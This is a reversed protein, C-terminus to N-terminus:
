TICATTPVYLLYFPIQQIEDIDCCGCLPLAMISVLTIFTQAVVSSMADRMGDEDMKEAFPRNREM